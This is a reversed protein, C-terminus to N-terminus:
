GIMIHRMNQLIHQLHFFCKPLKEVFSAIDSRLSNVMEDAEDLVFVALKKFKLFISSAWDTIKGPTGCCIQSKCKTVRKPTSEDKIAMKISPRSVMRQVLANIAENAIQQILKRTPAVVVAQLKDKTPDITSLM